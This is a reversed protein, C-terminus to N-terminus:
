NSRFAANPGGRCGEHWAQLDVCARAPLEGAVWSAIDNIVESGVHVEPRLDPGSRKRRDLLTHTHERYLRFVVDDRKCLGAVWGVIEEGSLVEDNLSHLILM